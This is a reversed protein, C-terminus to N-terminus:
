PATDFLGFIRPGTRIDANITTVNSFVPGSGPWLPAAIGATSDVTQGLGSLPGGTQEFLSEVVEIPQANAGEAQQYDKVTKPKEVEEWPV